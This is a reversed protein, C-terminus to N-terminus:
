FGTRMRPHLHLTEEDRLGLAALTEADRLERTGRLLRQDEPHMGTQRYVLLKLIEVTTDGDLNRLRWANGLITRVYLQM